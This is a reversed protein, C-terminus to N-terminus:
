QSVASADAVETKSTNPDTNNVEDDVIEVLTDHKMIQQGTTIVKDGLVLGSRVEIRGDYQYGVEISRQLAKDQEVVFVHSRNDQTIVAQQQLVLVDDRTDFVVEAKGFMGSKLLHQENPVNVVVRFTGTTTDIAPRVRDVTGVVIQDALADIQLLVKQGQKVRSLEKEPLFLMAVLSNLDVITFLLENDRILNGQKVSRETIIGSIPARISAYDLRLKSLQLQAQQSQYEFRARDLADSSGLKRRYLQEQRTLENKLKNVTAKIQTVELTLQEIDLQALLQGKEVIDGEEVLLKELVGTSRAVVQAENEAELTTIARYTHSVSGKGVAVVEVPIPAKKEEDEKKGKEEEGNMCGTLLLASAFIFCWTVMCRSLLYM